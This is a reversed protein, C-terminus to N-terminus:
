ISGKIEEYDSLGQIDIGMRGDEHITFIDAFRAGWKIESYKYSSRTHVTQAFTEAYGTLLILVEADKEELTDADQQALPSEETMPHVVTWNLPFFTVSDRELALEEYQRHGNELYSFVVKASLEVLQGRRKNAIRFMLAQGGQYPAILAENSFAIKAHPRSFRAFMFGTVLAFGLLGFFSEVTFLINAGLGVPTLQGFGVTTFAQVSFFFANLFSSNVGTVQVGAIADPGFLMYGIGFFANILLYAGLTILYFKPWSLRLMVQYLTMSEWFSLGDRRVNFSGDKNLLRYNGTNGVRSGFGLDQFEERINQKYKKWNLM